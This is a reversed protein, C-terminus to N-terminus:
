YKLPRYRHERLHEGHEQAMNRFVPFVQGNPWINGVFPPIRRRFVSFVPFVQFWYPRVKM